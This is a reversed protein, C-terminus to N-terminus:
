NITKPVTERYINSVPLAGPNLWKWHLYGAIKSVEANTLASQYMIIENVNGQNFGTQSETCAIFLNTSTDPNSTGSAHNTIIGNRALRRQITNRSIVYTTNANIVPSDSNIRSSNGGWDFVMQSSPSGVQAIVIGDNFSNRKALLCQVGSGGLIRTFTTSIAITFNATFFTTPFSSSIIQLFDNVGDFTITNRNQLYQNLKPRSAETNQIATFNGVKSTWASVLNSFNVAITTLDNADLWLVCGSIRNPMWLKATPYNLM